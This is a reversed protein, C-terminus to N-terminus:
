SRDLFYQSFVEMFNNELKDSNFFLRRIERDIFQQQIADYNDKVISKMEEPAEREELMQFVIVSNGIVQPESAVGKELSFLLKLIRENSSVSQLLSSNDMTRISKMFNISGYNIPFFDTLHSVMDRSLASEQFGAEEAQKAFDRGENIFYDEIIGRDNTLMYSFVKELIEPSTFDAERVPGNAQYIAYGFPTKILDSVEDPNLSFVKNRDEESEIDSHLVYRMVYGMDGGKEAYIDTSHSQALESFTASGSRLQDLISQAATKDDGLTIRSFAGESFLEQKSSGYEAIKEDPYDELNWSVFTFNREPSVMSIFFEQEGQSSKVSTVDEIWQQHILSERYYNRVSFKESNPTDRYAEPSFKGNLRYGPYSTLAKDVSKEGIVLGSRAAQDLIAMHIVTSEFASNWVQFLQFEVNDEQQFMSQYQEAIMDRQRAFYNDARYEIPEGDWQGFVLGQSGGLGSMIPAGVFTVVIIVLILVSFIWLFPHQKRKKEVANEKDYDKSSTPM